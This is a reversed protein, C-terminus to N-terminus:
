RITSTTEASVKRVESLYGVASVEIDYVGSLLEMAAEARDDTTQWVVMHSSANTAKVVAQRDLLTSGNPAYVTVVLIAGGNRSEYSTMSGTTSGMANFPDQASGLATLFLTFLLIATFRRYMM